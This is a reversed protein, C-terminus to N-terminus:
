LFHPIRFDKDNKIFRAAEFTKHAQSVSSTLSLSSHPHKNPPPSSLTPFTVMSNATRFSPGVTRDNVCQALGRGREPGGKRRKGIFCPDKWSLLMAALPELILLSASTAQLRHRVAQAPELDPLDYPSQSTYDGSSFFSDSCPQSRGKGTSPPLSAPLVGASWAPVPM